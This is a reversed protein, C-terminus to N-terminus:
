PRTRRVVGRKKTFVVNYRHLQAHADSAESAFWAVLVTAAVAAVRSWRRAKARQRRHVDLLERLSRTDEKAGTVFARLELGLINEVGCHSCPATVSWANAELPAGCQRCEPRGGHQRPKRAAFESWLQHVAQRDYFVYYGALGLALVCLTGLGLLRLLPTGTTLPLDFETGFAVVALQVVLALAVAALVQRQAGAVDRRGLLERLLGDQGAREGEAAAQADLLARVRENPLIGHGCHLCSTPGYAEPESPAGCQPCAVVDVTTRATPAPLTGEGRRATVLEHIACLCEIDVLTEAVARLRVAGRHDRLTLHCLQARWEVDQEVGLLRNLLAFFGLLMGVPFFVLAFLTDATVEVHLRPEVTSRDIDLEEWAVFAPRALGDDLGLGAEGVLVDRPRSRWARAFMTWAYSLLALGVVAAWVTVGTNPLGDYCWDTVLWGLTVSGFLM